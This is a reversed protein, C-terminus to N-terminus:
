ESSHLGGSSNSQQLEQHMAELEQFYQNMLQQCLAIDLVNNQTSQVLFPRVDEVDAM